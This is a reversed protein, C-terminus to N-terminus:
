EPADIEGHIGPKVGVIRMSPRKHESLDRESVIATEGGMVANLAWWSHRLGPFCVSHRALFFMVPSVSLLLVCDDGLKTEVRHTPIM